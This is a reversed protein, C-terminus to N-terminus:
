IACPASGFSAKLFAIVSTNNFFCGAPNYISLCKERLVMCSRKKFIHWTQEIEYFPYVKGTKSLFVPIRCSLHLRYQGMPATVVSLRLDNNM